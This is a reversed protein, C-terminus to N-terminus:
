RDLAASRDTTERRILVIAGLLAALLALASLVYLPEFVWNFTSTYQRGFFSTTFALVPTSFLVAQIAPTAIRRRGVMAAVIGSSLLLLTTAYQAVQVSPDYSTINTLFLPSLAAHLPLTLAGIGLAYIVHRTGLRPAWVLVTAVVFLVFILVATWFHLSLIEIQYQLVTERGLYVQIPTLVAGLAILGTVRRDIAANRLSAIATGIIAFGAFMAVFRHIWEYFSPLGAPLLNYPGADCQPWNAECGLGGGTAKAAVGLLITAGVFALTTALLHPFGFRDILSRLRSATTSSSSM